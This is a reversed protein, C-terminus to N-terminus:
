LPNKPSHVPPSLGPRLPESLKKERALEIFRRMDPPLGDLVRSDAWQSTFQSFVTHWRDQEDPQRSGDELQLSRGTTLEKKLYNAIIRAQQGPDEVHRIIMKLSKELMGYYQEPEVPQVSAHEKGPRNVVYYCPVDAVVSVTKALLYARVMFPQDEATGVGEPFRIRHDLLFQRRFMKTPGIAEFLNSQFIDTKPRNQRFLSTAVTRGNVGVFKGIVIDAGNAAGMETMRELARPGLYDDADLFFIFDGRAEDIIRNRPAGPGGTNAQHFVRMNAHRDAYRDLVAASGDTSGDDVAIIEVSDSQITQKLVSNLADSLYHVSNFVPIGITVSPDCM